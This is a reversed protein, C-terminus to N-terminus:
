YNKAAFEEQLMGYEIVDLWCGNKYAAQRRVGERSMGLSLALRQMGLNNSFTGCAIRHLNMSDFGHKCLLVAAEKAYGKGWANKDGIVISLEAQRYMSHINQLAINGIHQGSERLEVALVLSDKTESTWRIYDLAAKQTFPFVHHSNGACVEGDNFWGLYPGTADAEVLGRLLVREGCIFAMQNM